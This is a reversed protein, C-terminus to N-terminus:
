QEQQEDQGHRLRHAIPMLGLDIVPRLNISHCLRCQDTM